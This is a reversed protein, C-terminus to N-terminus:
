FNFKFFSCQSDTILPKGNLADATGVSFLERERRSILPNLEEFSCSNHGAIRYSYNM